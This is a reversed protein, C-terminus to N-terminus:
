KFCTSIGNSLYQHLGPVCVQLNPFVLKLCKVSTKIIVNVCQKLETNNVSSINVVWNDIGFINAVWGNPIIM